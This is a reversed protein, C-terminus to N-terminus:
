LDEGDQHKAESQLVNRRGVLSLTFVSHTRLSLLLLRLWTHLVRSYVCPTRLKVSPRRVQDKVRITIAETKKKDEGANAADNPIEDSM